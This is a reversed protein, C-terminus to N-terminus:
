THVGRAVANTVTDRLRNLQNQWAQFLYPRNPVKRVAKYATVASGRRSHGGVHFTMYGNTKGLAVAHMTYAHPAITAGADVVLTTGTVQASLASRLRGTGTPALSQAAAVVQRGAETLADTM